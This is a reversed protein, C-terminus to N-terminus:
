SDYAKGIDLPVTHTSDIYDTGIYNRTATRKIMHGNEIRYITYEELLAGKKSSNYLTDLPGPLITM